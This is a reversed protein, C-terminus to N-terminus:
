SGTGLGEDRIGIELLFVCRYLYCLLMLQFVPLSSLTTDGWFIGHDRLCHSPLYPHTVHIDNAICVMHGLSNHLTTGGGEPWGPIIGAGCNLGSIPHSFSPCWHYQRLLVVM